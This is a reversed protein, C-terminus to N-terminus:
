VGTCFLINFFCYNYGSLLCQFFSSDMKWLWLSQNSGQDGPPPVLIGCAWPLQVWMGCNSISHVVVFVWHLWICLYTCKLFNIVIHSSYIWLNNNLLVRHNIYKFVLLGNHGLSEFGPSQSLKPPYSPILPPFSTWSLPFMHIGIASEHQHIASVLM